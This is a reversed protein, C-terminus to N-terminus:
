NSQKGNQTCDTTCTCYLLGGNFPVGGIGYHKCEPIRFEPSSLRTPQECIVAQEPDWCISLKGHKLRDQIMCGIHWPKVETDVQRM